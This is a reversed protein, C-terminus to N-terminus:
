EFFIDWRTKRFYRKLQDYNDVTERLPALNQKKMRTTVPVCPVNLFMFIRQLTDEQKATLDEYTVDIKPHDAFARDAETAFNDLKDFYRCCEEPELHIPPTIQSSSKLSWWQDTSFAKKLSVLTYLMNRRKLHIVKVSRDARLFEWTTRFREDLIEWPYNDEVFRSFETLKKHLRPAANSIDVSKQLYDKTLHDYFMKFGVAAIEPRHAKCVKQLFFKIPDELAERLNEEPLTDLNFVEGYTKIQPHASLLSLLLNSGTRASGLIMFRQVNLNSNM